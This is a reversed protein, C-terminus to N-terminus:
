LYGGNVLVGQGGMKELRLTANAVRARWNERSPYYVSAVFAGPALRSTSTPNEECFAESLTVLKSPESSSLSSPDPRFWV